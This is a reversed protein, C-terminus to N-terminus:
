QYAKMRVTGTTTGAAGELIGGPAGTFTIQFTVDFYSDVEATGDDLFTLTTHGPSPFGNATGGVIDLQAFDPDGALSGQIRHMDTPFSQVAAGPTRPGTHTEVALPMSITRTWGNLPSTPDNSVGTMQFTIISAFVEIEGGLSGGQQICNKQGGLRCVFDSHIPSLIIKTGAPLGGIIEHVQAATLYKCGAPPLTVTGGVVPQKCQPPVAAGQALAAGAAVAFGLIAVFSVQRWNKKTSM